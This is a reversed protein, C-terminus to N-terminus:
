KSKIILVKFGGPVKKCTISNPAWVDTVWYEIKVNGSSIAEYQSCSKSSIVV